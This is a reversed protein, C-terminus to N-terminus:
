SLCIDWLWCLIGVSVYFLYYLIALARTLVLYPAASPWAGAQTLLLFVVIHTWFYFKVPGYFSLGKMVQFSLLPLLLLILISGFLSVVGGLKSPVCRLIAYAFM